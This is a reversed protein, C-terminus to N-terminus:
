DTTGQQPLVGLVPYSVFSFLKDQLLTKSNLFGFDTAVDPLPRTDGSVMNSILLLFLLLPAM